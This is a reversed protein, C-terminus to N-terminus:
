RKVFAFIIHQALDTIHVVCVCVRYTLFAHFDAIPFSSPLVDSALGLRPIDM